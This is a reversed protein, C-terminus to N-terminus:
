SLKIKETPKVGSIIGYQWLGEKLGLYQYKCAEINQEHLHTWKYNRKIKKWLGWARAGFYIGFLRRSSGMANHTINRYKINKFGTDSFYQLFRQPSELFNVRWGRLWKRITPHQNNDFQSVMGDAIILRGGPKLIRWAEKVFAQKDQAYCISELGWVVDFSEEAFNTNCYDMVHFNIKHELGRNKILEKAQDIQKESLSIGTCSCGIKEALYISSGGIGCGADLVKDPSKIDAREALVQNMRLLTDGFTKTTHDRYGFHLALSNKLDWGDKYSEETLDYYEIISRLYTDQFM